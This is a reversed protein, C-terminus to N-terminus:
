QDFIASEKRKRGGVISMHNNEQTESDGTLMEKIMSPREGFRCQSGCEGGESSSSDVRNASVLSRHSKM